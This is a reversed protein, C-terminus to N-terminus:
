ILNVKDILNSNNNQPKNVDKSIEYFEFSPKKRNNLFSTIEEQDEELYNEIDEENITVPQRHHIQKVNEQAEETILCFESNNYIAAVYITNKDERTFYHPTKITGERKWEYFGDMISVCRNKKILNKFSIKENITELRANILAKFDKKKAWSPVIGWKVKELTIGNTYKKIIPLEQSPHANYNMNNEVKIYTKVIKKTKNIPNTIVYRGCM